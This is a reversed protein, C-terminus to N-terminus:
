LSFADQILMLLQKEWRRILNDVHQQLNENVCRLISVHKANPREELKDRAVVIAFAANELRSLILVWQRHQSNAAPSM